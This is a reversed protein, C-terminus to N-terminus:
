EIWICKSQNSVCEQCDKNARLLGKIINSNNQVPFGGAAARNIAVSARILRQVHFHIEVEFPVFYDGLAQRFINTVDDDDLACMNLVFNNGAAVAVSGCGRSTATTVFATKELRVPGKSTIWTGNQRIFDIAVRLEDPADDIDDLLLRFRLEDVHCLFSNIHWAALM